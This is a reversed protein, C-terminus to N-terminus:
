TSVKDLIDVKAVVCLIKRNDDVIIGNVYLKGILLALHRQTKSFIYKGSDSIIGNEIAISKFSTFSNEQFFSSFKEENSVTKSSTNVIKYKNKKIWSAFFYSLTFGTLGFLNLVVEVWININERFPVSVLYISCFLLLIPILFLAVQYYKNEVEKHLKSINDAFNDIHFFKFFSM